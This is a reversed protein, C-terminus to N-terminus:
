LTVGPPYSPGERRKQCDICYLVLPVVSLRKEDIEVGCEECIGYTGRELKGLAEDMRTLEQRRIDAVALGTDELLGILGQDAPDQPIEFQTHLEEGTKRFLDERLENWLRRKEELLLERLRTQRERNKAPM